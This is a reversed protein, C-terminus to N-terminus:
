PVLIIECYYRWFIVASHVLCVPFLLSVASLILVYGCSWTTCFAGELEGSWKPAGELVDSCSVVLLVRLLLASGKLYQVSNIHILPWIFCIDLTNPHAGQLVLFVLSSAMRALPRTFKITPPPAEGVLGSFPRVPLRLILYHLSDLLHTSWPSFNLAHM